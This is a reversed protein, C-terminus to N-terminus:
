SCCSLLPGSGRCKHFFNILPRYSGQAFVGLNFFHEVLKLFLLDVFWIASPGNQRFDRSRTCLGPATRHPCSGRDELVSLALFGFVVFSKLIEECM